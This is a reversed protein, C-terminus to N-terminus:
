RSARAVSSGPSAMGDSRNAMSNDAVAASAGQGCQGRGVRRHAAAWVPRPARDEQLGANQQCAILANSSEASENLGSLRDRGAPKKQGAPHIAGELRTELLRKGTWELAPAPQTPGQPRRTPRREPSLGPATSHPPGAGEPARTEGM